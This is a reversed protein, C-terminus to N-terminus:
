PSRKGRASANNTVHSVSADEKCRRFKYGRFNLMSATEGLVRLNLVVFIHVRITSLNFLAWAVHKKGCFEGFWSNM